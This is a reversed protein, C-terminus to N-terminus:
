RFVESAKDPAPKNAGWFGKMGEGRIRCPKNSTHAAQICIVMSIGLAGSLSKEVVMLLWWGMDYVYVLRGGSWQKGGLASGGLSSNFPDKSNGSVAWLHPM